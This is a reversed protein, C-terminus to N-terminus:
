NSAVAARPRRARNRVRPGDGEHVHDRTRPGSGTGGGDSPGDKGASDVVEDNEDGTQDADIPTDDGATAEEDASVPRTILFVNEPLEAPDVDTNAAIVDALSRRYDIGYMSAIAELAPDNGYFFRDGNRLAEFQRTWMALQLEGFETGPVHPESVMGTFADVQDVSGFVAKLRAATTSRRTADVTDAEAADSGITIPNGDGDALSVVDLIEPDDITLGAPLDETAEGTLEAFTSVPALGYAARMDSYTPM